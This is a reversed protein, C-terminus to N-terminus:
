KNVQKAKICNDRNSIIQLNSLKNNLPNEDIHDVVLSRNGYQHNLFTIAMLSHVRKTHKTTKEGEVKRYLTVQLYNRRKIGSMHPKIYRNNVKDFVDGNESIKYRGNFNPVDKWKLETEM